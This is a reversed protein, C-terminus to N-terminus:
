SGICRRADRRTFLDLVIYITAFFDPAAFNGQPGAFRLVETGLAGRARCPQLRAVSGAQGQRDGSAVAEAKEAIGPSSIVRMRSILAYAGIVM